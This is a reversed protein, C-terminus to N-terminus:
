SHQGRDQLTCRGDKLVKSRRERRGRERETRREGQRHTGGQGAGARCLQGGVVLAGLAFPDIPALGGMPVSGYGSPMPAAGVHGTEGAMGTLDRAKDESGSDM